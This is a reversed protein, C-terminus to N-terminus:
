SFHKANAEGQDDTNGLAKDQFSKSQISLKREVGDHVITVQQQKVLELVAVFTVVVGM